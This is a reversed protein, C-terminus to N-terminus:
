PCQLIYGQKKRTTIVEADFFITLKRRLRSINVTLANDNIYEENDWLVTMLEDRSVIEGVHHFLTKFILMENKTLVIEEGTSIKILTGRAIDVQCGRYIEEKTGKRGRRLVAGIRLLLLTPNYPKVIYDDAGYSMSLVEDIEQTRSTVMIIPVDSKKRVLRLIAEGSLEPLTIDLLVLDCHLALIHEVVDQDPIITKPEYGAGQLLTELEDRICKDDEIIAIKEM